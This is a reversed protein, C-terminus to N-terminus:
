YVSKKYKPETYGMNEFWNEGYMTRLLSVEHETLDEPLLGSAMNFILNDVETIEM